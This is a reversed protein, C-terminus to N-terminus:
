PVAAPRRATVAPSPRGPGNTNAHHASNEGCDHGHSASDGGNHDRLGPMAVSALHLHGCTLVGATVRVPSPELEGGRGPGPNILGRTDPPM